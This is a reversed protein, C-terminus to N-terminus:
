LLWSNFGYEEVKGLDSFVKEFTRLMAYEAVEM